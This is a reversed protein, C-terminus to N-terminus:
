AEEQWSPEKGTVVVISNPVGFENDPARPANEDILWESDDVVFAYAHSGVTLPLQVTWLGERGVRRLATAGPDWDNFDGVLAVKSAGPAVLVFQVLTQGGEAPGADGGRLPGLLLFALVAAAGATALASLPRFRIERTSLLWAGARRLASRRPRPEAAVAELLRARAGPSTEVPARLEAVVEDLWDGDDEDGERM